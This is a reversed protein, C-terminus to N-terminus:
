KPRRYLPKFGWDSSSTAGAFDGETVVDLVTLASWVISATCNRAFVCILQHSTRYNQVIIFDLYSSAQPPTLYLQLSTFVKEAISDVSRNKKKEFSSVFCDLTYYLRKRLMYAFYRLAIFILASSRKKREQTWEALGRKDSTHM